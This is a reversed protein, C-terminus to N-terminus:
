TESLHDLALPLVDLRSCVPCFRLGKAGGERPHAGM